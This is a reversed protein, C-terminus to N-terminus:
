RGGEEAEGAAASTATWPEARANGGDGGVAAEVAAWVAADTLEAAGHAGRLRAEGAGLSPEAVVVVDDRDGFAAAVEDAADAAVEVTIPADDLEALAARVRALADHAGAGPERAWVARAVRLALETVAEAQDRRLAAVEARLGAAAEGIATAVDAVHARGAREGEAYGDRRGEAYGEERGAALRRALEPDIAAPDPVALPRRAASVATRRVVESLSTM